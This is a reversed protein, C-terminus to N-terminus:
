PIAEMLENLAHGLSIDAYFSGAYHGLRAIVMQKSPIIITSQGGVGEMFFADPPVPFTGCTNTWFSGGYVPNKDAVWASAPTSVFKAWWDPLIQEGSETVGNRLYLNGLRVWDRGSM